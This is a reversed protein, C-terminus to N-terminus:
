VQHRRSNLDHAGRQHLVGAGPCSIIDLRQRVGTIMGTELDVFASYKDHARRRAHTM